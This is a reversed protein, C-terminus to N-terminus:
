GPGRRRWAGVIAAAFAAITAIASSAPMARLKTQEDYLSVSWDQAAESNPTFEIRDGPTVAGDEDVDVYEVIADETEVEGREADVRLVPTAKASPSGDSSSLLHVQASELSVQGPNASSQVTWNRQAEDSAGWLSGERKIVMSELRTLDRAHPHSADDGYAFTTVVEAKDGFQDSHEAEVTMELLVPRDTAELVVLRGDFSATENEADIRIERAPEGEHATATESLQKNKPLEDIDELLSTPDMVDASRGRGSETPKSLNGWAEEFSSNEEHMGFLNPPVGFFTTKAVAGLLITANELSTEDGAGSSGQGSMTAALLREDADILMHMDMEGRDEDSVPQVSMDMSVRRVADGDPEVSAMASEYSSALEETSRQDDLGSAEEDSRGPAQAGPQDGLAQKTAEGVPELCGALPAVVLCLGVVLAVRSASNGVMVIERRVEVM